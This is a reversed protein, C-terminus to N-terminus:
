EGAGKMMEELTMFKVNTPPNFQSDSVLAPSCNYEAETAAAGAEGEGEWVNTEFCMKIGQSEGKNWSWMCKDVMIVYGTKGQASIEAYVKSGKIYSTGTNGEQSYTCKMPIGRAVVEKLKGSFSEGTEGAEKKIEGPLSVGGKGKGLFLWTGVALITIIVILIIPLFKKM